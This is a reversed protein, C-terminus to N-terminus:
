PSESLPSVVGGDIGCAARRWVTWFPAGARGCSHTFGYSYLFHRLQARFCEHDANM